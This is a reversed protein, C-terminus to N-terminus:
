SGRPSPSAYTSDRHTAAVARAVLLNCMPREMLRVLLRQVAFMSKGSGAGGYLVLYRCDEERLLPFYAPCFAEKPIQVRV